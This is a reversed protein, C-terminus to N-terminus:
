EEGDEVVTWRGDIQQVEGSQYKETFEKFTMYRVNHDDVYQIFSRILERREPTDHTNFHLLPVHVRGEERASDFAARLDEQSYLEVPTPGWDEVFAIDRGLYILDDKVFLQDEGYYKEHHSVSGSLLEYGEERLIEATTEDHSNWPPIFTTPCQDTYSELIATGNVIKERQTVRSVGRFESHDLLVGNHDFGDRSFMKSDLLVKSRKFRSLQSVHGEDLAIREFLDLVRHLHLHRHFVTLQVRDVFEDLRERLAFGVVLVDGVVLHVEHSAFRDLIQVSRITGVCVVLQDPEGM